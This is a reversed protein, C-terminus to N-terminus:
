GSHRKTGYHSLSEDLEDIEDIAMFETYDDLEM